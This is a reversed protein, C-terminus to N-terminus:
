FPEPDEDNPFFQIADQILRFRGDLNWSGSMRNEQATMVPYQLWSNQHTYNICSSLVWGDQMEKITYAVYGRHATGKNPLSFAAFVDTYTQEGFLLSGATYSESSLSYYPATYVTDGDNYLLRGTMEGALDWGEKGGRYAPWLQICETGYFGPDVTWLFHHIIKWQEREGPLKVAIGTLLLEKQDYETHIYTHPIGEEVKVESVRRGDNVPHDNVVMVVDLAGKCELIDEDTLDELISEPFGLKILHAKVEEVEASHSQEAPQWDMPYSNFFLYGCIGGALLAALICRVLTSNPYKLGAPRIAYGATDLEKSTKYLVRLICIYGVLMLIGFLTGGVELLGLAIVVAYWVIMAIVGGAGPRLGAKEQVERLARWFCCLLVFFLALSGINLAQGLVTSFFASHYITTNLVLTPFYYASRIVTLVWCARFWKNERRLNRFGVLMLLMGIAPLLYNLGLFNLTIANLALGTLIRTMAERWPTVDNVVDDPPLADLNEQLIAEFEVDDMARFDKDCM